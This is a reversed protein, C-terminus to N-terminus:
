PGAGGSILIAALGPISECRFGSCAALNALVMPCLAHAVHSAGCLSSNAHQIRHSSSKPTRTM